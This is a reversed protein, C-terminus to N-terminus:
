TLSTAQSLLMSNEQKDAADHLYHRYNSKMIVSPMVTLLENPILGECIQAYLTCAASFAQEIPAQDIIATIIGSTLYPVGAEYLDSVVLRPRNDLPLLNMQKCLHLYSAHSVYIGRISKDWLESEENVVSINQFGLAATATCFYAALQQQAHAEKALSHSYVALRSESPLGLTLIEAALGAAAQYNNIVAFDRDANPIDGNLLALKIGKAKFKSLLPLVDVSLLDNIIVGNYDDSLFGELVSLAECDGSQAPIVKVTFTVRKDILYEAAKNIGRVTYRYYNEDYGNILVGIHIPKQSLRAANHNKEYGMEKAAEIITRRLEDSVKAKNNLAKSVTNASINLKEAIDNLTVRM